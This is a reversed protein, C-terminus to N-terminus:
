ALRAPRARLLRPRGGRDGPRPLFGSGPTILITCSGNRGNEIYESMTPGRPAVVCLGMAMAELFSMGIGEARRPAFFVNAAALMDLYEGADRFWSSVPFISRARVSPRTSLPLCTATSMPRGICTSTPSIRYRRRTEQRPELRDLTDAALLLRAPRLCPAGREPLETGSLLTPGLNSGWIVQPAKGLHLLLLSVKFNRYRSWFAEDLPTDDYM